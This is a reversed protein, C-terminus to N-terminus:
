KFLGKIPETSCYKTPNCQYHKPKKNQKPKTKTKQNKTYELCWVKAVYPYLEFGNNENIHLVRDM